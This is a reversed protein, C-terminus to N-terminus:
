GSTAERARRGSTRAVYGLRISRRHVRPLDSVAVCFELVAARRINDMWSIHSQATHLGPYGGKGLIGFGAPKPDMIWGEKERAVHSWVGYHGDSPPSASRM